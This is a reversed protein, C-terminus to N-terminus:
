GVTRRLAVRESRKARREPRSPRKLPNAIGCREDLSNRLRSRFRLGPWYGIDNNPGVAVDNGM